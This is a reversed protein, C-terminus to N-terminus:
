QQCFTIYEFNQNELKVFKTELDIKQSRWSISIDNLKEFEKSYYLFWLDPLLVKYLTEM